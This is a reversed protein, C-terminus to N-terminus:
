APLPRIAASISISRTAIASTRTRAPITDLGGTWDETAIEITLGGTSAYDVLETPPAAVTASTQARLGLIHFVKSEKTTQTLAPSNHTTTTTASSGGTTASAIAAIISSVDAGRLPIMVAAMRRGSTAHSLTYSSPEDGVVKKTWLYLKSDNGNGLFVELENAFGTLGSMNGSGLVLVVCLLVDDAALDDTGAVDNAKDLTFATTTATGNNAMTPTGVTVSGYDPVPDVLKRTTQSDATPTTGSSVASLYPSDARQIVRCNQLHGASGAGDTIMVPVKQEVSVFLSNKAVVPGGSDSHWIHCADGTGGLRVPEFSKINDIELSPSWSRVSKKCGRFTSNRIVTNPAKSDAGGDTINEFYCGDVEISDNTSEASVGDGNWYDDLTDRINRFTSGWVYCHHADEDFQIGASFNDGDQLQSDGDIDILWVYHSTQQIKFLSKSHGQWHHSPLLLVEPRRCGLREQDRPHSHDARFSM